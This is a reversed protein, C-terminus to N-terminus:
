NSGQKSSSLFIKQADKLTTLIKQEQLDLAKIHGNNLKWIDQLQELNKAKAILDELDKFAKGHEGKPKAPGRAQSPEKKSAGSVAPDEKEERRELKEKLAKGNAATADTVIKSTEAKSPLAWEPLEPPLWKYKYERGTEKHKYVAYRAERPANDVPYVEAYLGKLKYLYKAVGFHKSARVLAGSFAGKYAEIDTEDSGDSKTVAKGNIWCTLRCIAGTGAHSIDSEWNEIGLVEDLRDGVQRADVYALPLMWVSGDKKLGATGPRWLIEDEPFPRKLEEEIQKVTKM